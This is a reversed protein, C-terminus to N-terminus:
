IFQMAYYHVGRECGVAYVPVVHPHKLSAAARAENHFRQLQRPELTAALPLVKLAVRRGLSIQEAEYVVGMGGRGVERLLRYDGLTGTLAAEGAPLNGSLGEGQFSADLVKLSALMERLITACGPYRAAYEEPDPREGRKQRERFEDAVGAVLSELSASDPPTQPNMVRVGASGARLAG